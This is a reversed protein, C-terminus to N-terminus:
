CVKKEVAESAAFKESEFQEKAENSQRVKQVAQDVAKKVSLPEQPKPIFAHDSLTQINEVKQKPKLAANVRALGMSCGKVSSDINMIKKYDDRAMEWNELAEYATARRLLAKLDGAIINLIYDCDSM